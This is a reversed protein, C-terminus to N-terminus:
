EDASKKAAMNRNRNHAGHVKLHEQVIELHKSLFSHKGRIVLMQKGKEISAKERL